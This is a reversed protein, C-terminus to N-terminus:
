AFLVDFKVQSGQAFHMGQWDVWINDADHSIAIEDLGGNPGAEGLASDESLTVGVISSLQNHTDEIHFGNFPTGEFQLSGFFENGGVTWTWDKTFNFVIQTDKFDVTGADEILFTAWEVQEIRDLGDDTLMGPRELQPGVTVDTQYWVYEDTPFHYTYTLEHGAFGIGDNAGHIMFSVPASATLAGNTERITIDFTDFETQGSALADTVARSDDLTYTLSLNYLQVTGYVGDLSYTGDGNDTWGTTDVYTASDVDSINLFSVTVPVPVNAAGAEEVAPGTSVTLTPADDVPTVTIPVITTTTMPGGAGSSGNDEATIIVAADGNFNAHPNFLLVSLAGDIQEQTGTFDLLGDSGDLDGVLGATPGLILAGQATQVTVHVPDGGSDDSFDVNLVATTDEAVVVDAPAAIVPADNVPNVAISM